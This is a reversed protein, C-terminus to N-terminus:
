AAGGKALPKRWAEAMVEVSLRVIQEGDRSIALEAFPEVTGVIPLGCQEADDPSMELVYTTALPELMHEWYSSPNLGLTAGLGSAICMEAVAVVLGGDSVDHASRVKGEAILSAVRKHLEYAVALGHQDVPASAVVLRNGAQKLDITVCRSV